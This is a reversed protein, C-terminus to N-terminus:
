NKVNSEKKNSARYWFIWGITFVMIFMLVAYPLCVLGSVGLKMAYWLEKIDLLFISALAIKISNGIAKIGLWMVCFMLMFDSGVKEYWKPKEYIDDHRKCCDGIYIAGINDPSLSCYDVKKM